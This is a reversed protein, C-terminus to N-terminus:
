PAMMPRGVPDSSIGSQLQMLGTVSPGAQFTTRPTRDGPESDMMPGAMRSIHKKGLVQNPLILLNVARFTALLTRAPTRNLLMHIRTMPHVFLIREGEVEGLVLDM